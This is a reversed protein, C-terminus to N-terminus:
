YCPKFKHKLEEVSDENKQKQYYFTISDIMHQAEAPTNFTLEDHWTERPNPIFKLRYKVKDTPYYVPLAVLYCVKDNYVYQDYKTTITYKNTYDNCYIRLYKPNSCRYFLVDNYAYQSQGPIRISILLLIFFIYKM